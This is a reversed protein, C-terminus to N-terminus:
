WYGKSPLVLTSNAYSATEDRAISLGAAYMQNDLARYYEEVAPRAIALESFRLYLNSAKDKDM